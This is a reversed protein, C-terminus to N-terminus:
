EQETSPEQSQEKAMTRIESETYQLKGSYNLSSAGKAVGPALKEIKGGRALFEQMMKDKEEQSTVKKEESPGYNRKIDIVM